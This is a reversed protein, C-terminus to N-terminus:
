SLAGNKLALMEAVISHITPLIQLELENVSPIPYPESGIRKAFDLDIGDEILKALVESSVGFNVSGDEVVLLRRTKGVSRKVLSLDMPHLQTLCVLEAFEDTEEFFLALNDAIHRALEGYSVITISPDYGNPSLILGGFPKDERYSKYLDNGQWLVAGYDLKNEIVVAPCMFKDLEAISLKPDNLSSLAITLVNDIGVLFKELSQSHTPGYGRKGGMPTRIRLPVDVQFNYMHHMKSANNVLQDFALTMFDGFMIETFSQTGMLAMGISVGVMGGESISSGFVQDPYKDSFGKTVKFAGGYPDLIDEGILFAGNVLSESYAKNLAQVMRIKDNEIPLLHGEKLRPLQDHCYDLKQIKEQTTEKIHTRIEQEIEDKKSRWFEKELVLNLPDLSKFYGIEKGDRDDDGKSHANLRYTQINVFAPQGKRVYDIADRVVNFLDISEWTNCEFTKIGFSKARDVISGAVSSIQPTSQSYFNNECVFLQPVSHLSALNFAEYLVGEGLTGEGLFSVAIDSKKALKKHLAIGTGVPILSGQVGNSLFGEAYLHQSSGIGGCVGSKLGMLEDILGKWNGTKSIFHGHCRHNSTVWDDETLFHCVAVASLEQGVCTHVTGNMKGLSFLELFTEEVLRIRLAEEILSPDINDIHDKSKEAFVFLNDM